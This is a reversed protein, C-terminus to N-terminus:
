HRMPASVSLNALMGWSGSPGLAVGTRLRRKRESGIPVIALEARRYPSGKVRGEGPPARTVVPSGSPMRAIKLAGGSVKTAGRRDVSCLGGWAFARM